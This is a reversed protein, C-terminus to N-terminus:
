ILGLTYFFLGELLLATLNSVPLEHLEATTVGGDL